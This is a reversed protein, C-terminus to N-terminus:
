QVDLEIGGVFGAIVNYLWAAILMGIFGIGGYFIPLIFIAGVGLM